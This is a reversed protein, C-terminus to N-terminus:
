PSNAKAGGRCWPTRRCSPSRWDECCSWRRRWKKDSLRLGNNHSVQKHPKTGQKPSIVEELSHDPLQLTDDLCHRVDRAWHQVNLVMGSQRGLNEGELAGANSPTFFMLRCKGGMQGRISMNRPMLPKPENKIHVGQTTANGTGSPTCTVQLVKAVPLGSLKNVQLVEVSARTIQVHIVRALRRM